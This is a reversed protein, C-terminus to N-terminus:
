KKEKFYILFSYIQLSHSTCKMSFLIAHRESGDVITLRGTLTEDIIGTVVDSPAVDVGDISANVAEIATVVAEVAEFTTDVAEM